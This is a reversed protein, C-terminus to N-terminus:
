IYRPHETPLGPISLKRQRQGDERQIIDRGDERKWVVTPNPTGTAVCRLTINGGEKMVLGDSSEDDM